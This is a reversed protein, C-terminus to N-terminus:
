GAPPPEPQARVVARPATAEGAPAPPAESLPAAAPAVVPSADAATFERGFRQGLVRLRLRTPQAQGDRRELVLGVADPVRVELETATARGARVFVAPADHRQFVVIDQGDGPVFDRGSLRLTEGVRVQPASLATVTPSPDPGTPAAAAAAAGLACAGVVSPVLLRRPVRM